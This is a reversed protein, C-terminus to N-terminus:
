SDRRQDLADQSRDIWVVDAGLHATLDNVIYRGM